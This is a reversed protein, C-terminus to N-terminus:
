RQLTVRLTETLSASEIRVVYVGNPLATTRWNLSHMAGGSLSGDFLTTVHRGLVDFVNVTVPETRPLSFRIETATRFPNPSASLPSVHVPPEIATPPLWHVTPDRLQYCGCFHRFRPDDGFWDEAQVVTVGEIRWLEVVVTTTHITDSQLVTANLSDKVSQIDDSPIYLATLEGGLFEPATFSTTDTAGPVLRHYGVLTRIDGTTEPLGFLLPAFDWIWLRTAGPEYTVQAHDATCFRHYSSDFDDLIFEARCTSSGSLVFPEAGANTLTILVQIVEEEAYVDQASEVRLVASEQALGSTAALVALILTATYRM